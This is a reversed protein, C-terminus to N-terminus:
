EFKNKKKQSMKTKIDPNEEIMSKLTRMVHMDENNIKNQIKEMMEKKILDRIIKEQAKELENSTRQQKTQEDM